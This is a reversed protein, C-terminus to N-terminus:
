KEGVIKYAIIGASSKEEWNPVWDKAMCAYDSFEEYKGDAFKVFVMTYPSVPMKSGDHEIWESM